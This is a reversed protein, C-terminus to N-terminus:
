SAFLVAAPKPLIAPDTSPWYAEEFSSPADPEGIMRAFMQGEFTAAAM